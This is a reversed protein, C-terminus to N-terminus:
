RRWQGNGFLRGWKDSNRVCPQGYRHRNCIDSSRRFDQTNRLDLRPDPPIRRSVPTERRKGNRPNSVLMGAHVPQDSFDFCIDEVSSQERVTLLHEDRDRSANIGDNKELNKVPQSAAMAPVQDNSMEIM